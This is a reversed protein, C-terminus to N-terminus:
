IVNFSATYTNGIRTTKITIYRGAQIRKGLEVVTEGYSSSESDKQLAKIRDTDSSNIVEISSYNLIDNIFDTKIKSAIWFDNGSSNELTSQDVLIRNTSQSIASFTFITLFGFIALVTKLLRMINYHLTIKISHCNKCKLIM